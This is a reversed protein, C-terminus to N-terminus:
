RGIRPQSQLGRFDALSRGPLRSVSDGKPWIRTLRVEPNAGRRMISFWVEARQPSSDKSAGSAPLSDKGPFLRQEPPGAEAQSALAWHWILAQRVVGPGLKGGGGQDPSWPLRSCVL